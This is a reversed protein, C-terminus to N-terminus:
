SLKSSFMKLNKFLSKYSKKSYKICFNEKVKKIKKSNWWIDINAYNQNIFNALENEDNFILKNKALIKFDNHNETHIFNLNYPFLCITPIDLSLCELFGTSYDNFIVIKAKKALDTFNFFQSVTLSKQKKLFEDFNPYKNKKYNDHLKLLIKKQLKVNIKKIFNQTKSFIVSGMHWRDYHTIQSGTSRTVILINDKKKYNSSVGWTKFNFLPSIKSSYRKNGWSIFKDCTRFEVRSKKDYSELYGFGHQGVIYKSGQNIKEAIWINHKDSKGFSNTTFIIKIKKALYKKNNIVDRIEEYNEIISKPIFDKIMESILCYFKDQKKNTFVLRQRKSIDLQKKENINAYFNFGASPVKNIFLKLILSQNKPIYTDM